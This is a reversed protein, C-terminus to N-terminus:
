RATNQRSRRASGFVREGVVGGPHDKLPAHTFSQRCSRPRECAMVRERLSPSPRPHAVEGPVYTLVERGDEDTGLAGPVGGFGVQELHRLLDHVAPTWPGARRHVARGILIVEGAMNGGTLM